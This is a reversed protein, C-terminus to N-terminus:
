EPVIRLFLEGSKFDLVGNWFNSRDGPEELEVQFEELRTGSERLTLLAQYLDEATDQKGGRPEIENRCYFCGPLFQGPHRSCLAM